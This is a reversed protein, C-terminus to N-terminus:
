EERRKPQALSRVPREAAHDAQIRRGIAVLDRDHRKRTEEALRARDVQGLRVFAREGARRTVEFRRANYASAQEDTLIVLDNSEGVITVFEGREALRQAIYDRVRLLRLRYEDTGRAVGFAHEIVDAAVRSGKGLDDTPLPYETAQLDADPAEDFDDM